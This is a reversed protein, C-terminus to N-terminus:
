RIKKKIKKKLNDSTLRTCLEGRGKGKLTKRVTNEKTGARLVRNLANLQLFLQGVFTKANNELCYQFKRM